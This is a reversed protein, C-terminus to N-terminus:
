KKKSQSKSECIQLLYRRKDLGTRVRLFNTSNSASNAKCNRQPPFQCCGSDRRKEVKNESWARFNVGFQRRIKGLHVEIKSEPTTGTSYPKLNKKIVSIQIIFHVFTPLRRHNM